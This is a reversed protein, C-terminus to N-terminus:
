NYETYDLEDGDTHRYAALDLDDKELEELLAARAKEEREAPDLILEDDPNIRHAALELDPKKLEEELMERAAAERNKKAQEARAKALEIDEPLPAGLLPPLQNYSHGAQMRRKIENLLDDDTALTIAGKARIINAHGPTILEARIALDLFDLGTALSIDRLTELTTTRENKLQRVLTTHSLGAQKALQRISLKTQERLYTELSMNGTYWIPVVKPCTQHTQFFIM